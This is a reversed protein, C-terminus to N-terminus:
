VKVHGMDHGYRLECLLTSLAINMDIFCSFVEVMLPGYSDIVVWQWNKVLIPILYVWWRGIAVIMIKLRELLTAYCSIKGIIIHMLSPWCNKWIFSRLFSLRSILVIICVIFSELMYVYLEIAWLLRFM